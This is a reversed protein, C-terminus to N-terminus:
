EVNFRYKKHWMERGDAAVYALKEDILVLLGKKLLSNFMTKSIVPHINSWDKLYTRTMLQYCSGNYFVIDKNGVNYSRRNIKIEM